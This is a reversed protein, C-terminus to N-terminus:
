GSYERNRHRDLNGGTSGDRRWRKVKM